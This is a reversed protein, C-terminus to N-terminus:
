KNILIKSVVNASALGNEDRFNEHIKGLLDKEIRLKINSISLLFIFVSFGKNRERVLIM